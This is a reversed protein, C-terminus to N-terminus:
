YNIKLKVQGIVWLSQVTLRSDIEHVKEKKEYESVGLPVVM